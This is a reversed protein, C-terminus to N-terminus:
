GMGHGCEQVKSECLSAAGENRIMKRLCDNSNLYVDSPPLVSALSTGQGM